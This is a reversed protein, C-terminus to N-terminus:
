PPRSYQSITSSKVQRIWCIWGPSEKINKNINRMSESTSLFHCIRQENSFRIARFICSLRMSSFLTGYRFALRHSWNWILFASFRSLCLRVSMNIDQFSRGDGFEASAVSIRVRFEDPFVPLSVRIRLSWSSWPSARRSSLIIVVTADHRWTWKDLKVDSCHHLLFPKKTFFNKLM